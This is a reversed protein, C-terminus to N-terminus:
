FRVKVRGATMGEIAANAATKQTDLAENEQRFFKKRNLILNLIRKSFKIEWPATPPQCRRVLNQIIIRTSFLEARSYDKFPM